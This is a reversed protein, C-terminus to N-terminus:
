TEKQNSVTQFRVFGPFPGGLFTEQLWHLGDNCGQSACHLMFCTYLSTAKRQLWRVVVCVENHLSEDEPGTEDSSGSSPLLQKLRRLRSIEPGNDSASGAVSFSTLRGDNSNSSGDAGNSGGVHLLQLWEHTEHSFGPQLASM